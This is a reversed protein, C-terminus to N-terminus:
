IHMLLLVTMRLMGLWCCGTICLLSDASCPDCLTFHDKCPMSCLHLFRNVNINIYNQEELVQLFQALGYLDGADRMHLQM